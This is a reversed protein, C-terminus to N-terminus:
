APLCVEIAPRLSAPPGDEGAFIFAPPMGEHFAQIMFAPDLVVPDYDGQITKSTRFTLWIGVACMIIGFAATPAPGARGVIEISGIRGVFAVILVLLGSALTAAGPGNRVEQTWKALDALFGSRAEAVREAERERERTPM